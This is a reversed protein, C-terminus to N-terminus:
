SAPELVSSVTKVMADLGRRDLDQHVPLFVLNDYLFGAEPFDHLPLSPHVVDGWTAAPIGRARLELHFNRWGRAVFPFVWPCVGEPLAPFLPEIEHHRALQERLILYNTRRAAVIAPVNATHFLHRAIRSTAVHAAAPGFGGGYNTTVLAPPSKALPGLARRATRSLARLLVRARRATCRDSGELLRDLANVADRLQSLLSPQPLAPLAAPRPPRVVLQGGDDVPFFKRWSFVSVDGLTGLPEGNGKGSLVHACDEILALDRRDCLDRVARIAQPFGFYHIVLVARTGATIRGDLDDLDVSSDQRVRYFGVRVGFALLPEVASTCHFAPVLVADGPELGLVRLGHYLAYRGLSVHLTQGPALPPPLRHRPALPDLMRLRLRPDRPVIFSDPDVTRARELVDPSLTSHTQM